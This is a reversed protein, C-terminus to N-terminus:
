NRRYDIVEVNVKKISNDKNVSVEWKKSEGPALGVSDIAYTWNTDITSGSSNLFSVKIKAFSIKSYGRNTITGNAITYMSNNTINVNSIVLPASDNEKMNLLSNYLDKAFASSVVKIDDISLEDYSEIFSDAQHKTIFFLSNLKNYYLEAIDNLTDDEFNSLYYNNQYNKINFLGYTLNFFEDSIANETSIKYKKYTKNFEEYYKAYKSYMRYQTIKTNGFTILLRCSNSLEVYQENEFQKNAVSYMIGYFILYLIILLILIFLIIKKITIKNKIM